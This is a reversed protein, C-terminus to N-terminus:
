DASEKVMAESDMVVMDESEKEMVESDMVV